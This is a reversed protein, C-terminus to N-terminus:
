WDAAYIFDAAPRGLWQTVRMALTMAIAYRVNRLGSLQNPRCRLRQSLEPWTLGDSGRRANMAEYLGPAPFRPSQHLNWRLRRDPGAAPLAAGAVTTAGTLFSEPSRDLWRLMWLAHQCSTDGSRALATVAAPSIPHDDRRANLEASLAWMERAVESWTLGHEDRRADLARFLAAGDFTAIEQHGSL